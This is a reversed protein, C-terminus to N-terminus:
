RPSDSPSQLCIGEIAVLELYHWSDVHAEKTTGRTSLKCNVLTDYVLYELVRIRVRFRAGPNIHEVGGRYAGLSVGNCLRLSRSIM